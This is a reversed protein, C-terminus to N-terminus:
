ATYVCGSNQPMHDRESCFFAFIQGGSPMVVLDTKTKLSRRRAINMATRRAEDPTLVKAQRADAENDRSLLGPHPGL